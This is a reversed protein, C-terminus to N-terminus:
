KLKLLKLQISFLEPIISNQSDEYLRKLHNLNQEFLQKENEYYGDLYENWCKERKLRAELDEDTFVGNHVLLELTKKSIIEVPSTTCNKINEINKLISKQNHVFISPIAGLKLKSRGFSSKERDQLKFHRSCIRLNRRYEIQDYKKIAAVWKNYLTSNLPFSYLQTNWSNAEIQCSDVCCALGM